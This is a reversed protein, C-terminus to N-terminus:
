VERGARWEKWRMYANAGLWAFPEPPLKQPDPQGLFAEVLPTRGEVAFEAAAMGSLTGQATGLGNQCCASFLGPEQEGFAPVSNYSLCLRGSWRYEASVNELEPFRERFSYDHTKGMRKVLKESVQMSPEYVVRNRTIIRDGCAGSIRRVTTAIPDAPTIGWRREGGVARIEQGTLARTMSGFLIVHMLRRKFYGFSEAHGNVGLIVKSCTVSGAPTTAVWKRNELKLSTVPSNEFISVGSKSLGDALGRIYAAPQITATSPTFLGGVYWGSGTLKKMAKADLIKSDEGLQKLHEAYETNHQMGKETAAGNVKGSRNFVEDSLKNERAIDEAFDIALRKLRIDELDRELQGAYNSSALDHPLDLMFGSNRGAPGAAVRTADLVVIRSKPRLQYLRRAASLGAFGAGVVLYDAKEEAKLEIAPVQEPLIANWGSVGTDVPLRSVKSM